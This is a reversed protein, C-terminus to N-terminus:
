GALLMHAYSTNIASLDSFKELMRFSMDKDLERSPGFGTNFGLPTAGLSQASALAHIDHSVFFADDPRCDLLRLAHEILKPGPLCAQYQRSTVIQDIASNLQFRNLLMQLEYTDRHSNCVVAIRTGCASMKNLTSVVGSFPRLSNEFWRQRGHAATMAEEVQGRSLGIATLFIRLRDWYDIRGLYVEPLYDSQWVDFFTDFQSHIGIRGLLQYLWRHWITADFLVDDMDLLLNGLRM